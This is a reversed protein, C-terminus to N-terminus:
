KNTGNKNEDVQSSDPEHANNEKNSIDQKRKKLIQISWTILLLFGFLIIYFNYQKYIDGMEKAYYSAYYGISFYTLVFFIASMTDLTFWRLFPMTKQMGFFAPIFMRSLPVHHYFLLFWWNKSASQKVREPIKILKPGFIRGLFYSATDGLLIAIISLTIVLPSSLLGQQTLFGAAIVVLVGPVLFGTFVFSELCVFTFIAIYGYQTVMDSSFIIPNQM